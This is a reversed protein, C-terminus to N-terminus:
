HHRQQLDHPFRRPHQGGPSLSEGGCDPEVPLDPRRDVRDRRPCPRHAATAREQHLQTGCQHCDRNRQSNRAEVRWYYTGNPYADPSTAVAPTYSNYDTTVSSYTTHFDAHISVVLRYHDAGIMRSWSFSPDAAITEGDSPTLLQPAPDTAAPPAILTLRRWNNNGVHGGADVGSVRWYYTNLALADVPTLRLNYTIYTADVPVFTPSTSLEVKYYAAGDVAAWELTPVTVTANVDPSVLVPADIGKTFSRGASPTGVHGGADVGSVRWYHLGHALTDVPTTVTNYTIYTAEVPVFTPSTSVEVEYYTAEPVALWQFTPTVVGTHGDFPSVLVPSPIGKTFSRATSPTGVHGGADVSRVRWYHEGHAFTDVPTLSTNYTAYTAEMVVFTDSTSLEVQYYTAEPVRQWEFTPIVVSISGDVPSVLVPSPIDKTFSRATSPTGVHGNADVGSVRWFHEGHAVTDVPTLRTNYTTYTAEMVIFTPSTSVVVKYYTAEPVRQWEFAPIIVNISDDAPSVLDPAPITKTFFIKNTWLGAANSSDKARM